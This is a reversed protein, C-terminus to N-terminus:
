EWATSLTPTGALVAARPTTRISGARCQTIATRSLGRWCVSAAPATLSLGARRRSEACSPPNGQNIDGRHAPDTVEFGAMISLLWCDGMGETQVRELHEELSAKATAYMLKSFDHWQQRSDARKKESETAEKRERDDM